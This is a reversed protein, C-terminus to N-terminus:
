RTRWRCRWIAGIPRESPTWGTGDTFVRLSSVRGQLDFSEFVVPLGEAALPSPADMLHLHLHPADSQGSNGLRALVQGRRVRSGQRVVLSGPQLHAYFVYHGRGIDLVVYNGGVTTLTIPVAKASATPDNEPIGDQVEVVLGDAVALVEAGYPTWNGNDAPDGRFVQGDAGIRTWDIAFRQSIRARGDVALLTRRHISANSLAHSALWRDGRLPPGLVTPPETAIAVRAGDVVSQLVGAPPTTPAFVLRHRLGKPITAEAPIVVDLFVVARLGAGLTRPDALGPTGPRALVARLADGAYAVLCADGADAYAEVRELTLDSRGMNTVHLEYLVHQQGEATVPHPAFPLVLDVPIAAPQAVQGNVRGIVPLVCCLAVASVLRM